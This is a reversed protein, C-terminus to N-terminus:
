ADLDVKITWRGYGSDCRELNQTFSVFQLLCLVFAFIIFRNPLLDLGVIARFSPDLSRQYVNRLVVNRGQQDNSPLRRNCVEVLCIDPNERSVSIVVFPNKRNTDKLELYEVFLDAPIPRDFNEVNRPAINKFLYESEIATPITSVVRVLDLIASQALIM